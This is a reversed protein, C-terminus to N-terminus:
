YEKLQNNDMPGDSAGFNLVGATIERIGAGSGIPEYEIETDSHLKNFEAFWRAYMPYPFTAGGGRLTTQSQAERTLSSTLIVASTIAAFCKSLGPFPLVVNSFYNEARFAKRTHALRDPAM